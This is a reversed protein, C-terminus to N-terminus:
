AFKRSFPLESSAKEDKQILAHMRRGLEYLHTNARELRQLMEAADDMTQAREDEPNEDRLQAADDGLCAVLSEIEESPPDDWEWMDLRQDEKSIAGDDRLADQLVLRFNSGVYEKHEDEGHGKIGIRYRDPDGHMDTEGKLLVSGDCVYNHLYEIFDTDSTM